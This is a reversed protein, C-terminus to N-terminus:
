RPRPQSRMLAVGFWLTWVSMLISSAVWLHSGFGVDFWMGLAWGAFSVVGAVMAIWASWAPAARESSQAENRAIVAVALAMFAFGTAKGEAFAWWAEFTAMNGSAAAAAVVTAEAVATTMTWLAGVSVVAWATLTSSSATLRSGSGLVLLGTVAYLSFAAAAIWHAVAWRVPGDAVRKMQDGLDPAIPGHLVLTAIILLSAIALWTGAVQDTRNARTM